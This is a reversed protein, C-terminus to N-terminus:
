PREPLGSLPTTRKTITPVQIGRVAPDASASALNNYEGGTVEHTELVAGYSTAANASDVQAYLVTGAAIPWAVRSHEPSFYPSDLRLTLIEGPMLPLADATVGWVLGQTGLLPWTQNVATPPRRPNVYVDVWFEDVVPESGQNLVQVQVNNETAITIQTVLDPGAVFDRMVVPAFIESTRPANVEIEFPGARTTNGAVDCAVVWLTYPGAFLAALDYHWSGSAQVARDGYVEGNPTQVYVILSEIQDNGTNPSISGDQVTGSLIRVSPTMIVSAEVQDIQVVPAVNDIIVSLLSPNPTENGVLDV